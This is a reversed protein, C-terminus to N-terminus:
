SHCYVWLMLKTNYSVGINGKNDIIIIGGYGYEKGFQKEMLKIVKNAAYKPSRGSEVLDCATKATCMRIFAEGHGTGSAAAYRSAYTGAGIIPSDGVRGKMMNSRTGVRQGTGRLGGTSTAAALYGFNDLAVAGVTEHKIRSKISSTQTPFDHKLAYETAGLGVLMNNEEEMLKAAISIPNKVKEIGAVAGFSRDKGFMISADMRKVNDMQFVAGSGANFLGSNEIHKVVMEVASLSSTGAKLYGAGLKAISELYKIHKSYNKGQSFGAGGHVIIGPKM